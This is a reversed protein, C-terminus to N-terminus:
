HSYCYRDRMWDSLFLKLFFPFNNKERGPQYGGPHHHQDEPGFLRLGKIHVTPITLGM